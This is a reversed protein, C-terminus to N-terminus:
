QASEPGAPTGGPIRKWLGTAQGAPFGNIQIEGHNWRIELTNPQNWRPDDAQHRDTLFHIRQNSSGIWRRGSEPLERIYPGDVLIDTQQLLDGVAVSPNARLEELTFGSFVMVSLGLERVAKAFPAAVEAHAFPEGGLLTVGEIGASIASTVDRLLEESSRSTGGSFPLM